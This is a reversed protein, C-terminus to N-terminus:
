IREMLLQDNSAEKVVHQVMTSSIVKGSQTLIWYSLNSGICHLLGLWRGLQHNGLTIDSTAVHYWVLDYFEFDLWESIDPM